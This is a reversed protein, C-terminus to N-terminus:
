ILLGHTALFATSLSHSTYSPESFARSDSMTFPWCYIHLKRKLFNGLHLPTLTISWFSLILDLQHTVLKLSMNFKSSVNWFNFLCKSHNLSHKLINFKSQNHILDENFNRSFDFHQFATRPNRTPLSQTGLTFIDCTLVSLQGPVAPRHRSGWVIEAYIIIQCCQCIFARPWKLPEM